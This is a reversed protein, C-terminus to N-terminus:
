RTFLVFLSLILFVSGSFVTLIAVASGKSEARYTGLPGQEAGGGSLDVGIRWGGVVDGGVDGGVGGGLARLM